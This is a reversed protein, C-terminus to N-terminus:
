PGAPVYGKSPAGRLHVQQVVQEVPGQPLAGQGQGTSGGVATLEAGRGGGEGRAM